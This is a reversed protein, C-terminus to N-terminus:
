GNQIGWRKLYKKLVLHKPEDKLNCSDPYAIRFTVTTTRRGPQGANDFRAQLTAATVNLRTIPLRQEDLVTEIFDYIEGKAGDPSVELHIRRKPNGVVSLRLSRVRVEIIGDELTTPFPFGREKLGNLEYPKASRNAEGLEVHLIARGFAQELAHRIEKSGRLYLDLEGAGPDLIFVVEFAPNHLARDFKGDEDYRLFTDTYDQPYVFFYHRGDSREYSEVTCRRGRGQTKWYYESVAHSLADTAPKSVDPDERPLDIRKRYYRRSLHDAHHFLTARETIGQHNLWVWLVKNVLGDIPAMEEGLGGEAVLTRVGDESALGHIMRFTHDIADRPEEDLNQWGEFVADVETEELHDWDLETLENRQTFFTKLLALHAHRLFSRPAYDVAM